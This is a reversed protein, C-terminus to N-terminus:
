SELGSGKGSETRAVAARVARVHAPGTRCCGGVLRAGAGRWLKAREGWDAPDSSGRWRRAVADYREGSNPYAVLPKATERAAARLLAEVHEPATCNVGVAVLQPHSGALRAAESFRTGDSLREGDRCSFSIWARVAPREPLLRLLARAEAASPITECAFLDAQTDALLLFRERHFAVLGQEDLDYDGTYEAGNALCAGYPGLSAAVLPGNRGVRNGPQSWFADRAERALRVSRRLLEQAHAASLGEREFGRVSAQYSATTICDAGAELYARHVAAIADPADQLVRASWLPHDLDFGAKELETALGGDLVLTGGGALFPAIPGPAANM